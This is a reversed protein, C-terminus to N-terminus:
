ELGAGWPNDIAFRWARDAQRRVVECSNGSLTVPNGDPDTGTMKWRGGTLALDGDANQLTTTERAM